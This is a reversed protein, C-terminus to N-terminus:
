LLYSRLQQIFKDITRDIKKARKKFDDSLKFYAARSPLKGRKYRSELLNLSDKVSIREAELVDLRKIINEFTESTEMIAKKFPMIENQIEDIKSTNTDQINKFKKKSIKKRKVEEEAQRIELTLANKEEYLSCFERIENVPIFEKTVAAEDFEKKRTKIILVFATAVIAITLILIIPRLLIDFLNITFTLQIVMSEVPSVFNSKYILVTAGQTKRIADPYKTISDINFCGDIIINTTQDRGLYDYKTTLLDLQISEQFWNLSVYNEFPLSYEVYFNFTSNPLLRIRNAFLNIRVIKYIGSNIISIGLIEGLDDSIYINDAYKPVKLSFEHFNIVGLNEILLGEKVRIIGWPSILIERNIEKMETKTYTADYYIMNDLKKDGINELFPTIFDAGVEDRIFDFTYSIRHLEELPLGWSANIDTATIPFWFIATIEGELKYPLIPFINVYFSIFQQPFQLDGLISYSIINRYIHNFKITRTQHPLLPSNFYITIMEFGNMILNAREAFLTDQNEGIAEFFILDESINLPIGFFISLIPNNNLNKISLSDEFILLGYNTINAIRNTKTIIINEIGELGNSSKVRNNRNYDTHELELNDSIFSFLIIVLLFGTFILLLKERKLM